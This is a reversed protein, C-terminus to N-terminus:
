VLSIRSRLSVKVLVNLLTGKFKITILLFCAKIHIFLFHWLRLGCILGRYWSSSDFFRSVAVRCCYRLLFLIIM